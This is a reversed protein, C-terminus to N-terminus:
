DVTFSYAGKTRHTDAAVAHWSVTYVGKPLAAKVPVVLRKADAPDIRAAGTVVRHGAVDTLELGSFRAVVAESFTIRIADPAAHIAGDVAPAAQVLHAHAQAGSAAALAGVLLLAATKLRYTM